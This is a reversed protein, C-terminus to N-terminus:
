KNLFIINEKQELQTSFCLIRNGNETRINVTSVRDGMMVPYDGDLPIIIESNKCVICNVNNTYDFDNSYLTYKNKLLNNAKNINGEQIYKRIMTSSIESNNYKVKEVISVKYDYKNAFHILTQTDGKAMYGFRFNYGVVVHKINYRKILIETIFKEPSYKSVEENLELVCVDTTNYSKLMNIKNEFSTIYKLNTSNKKMSMDSYKFTLIISNFNNKHSIDIMTNILIDHGKHIGDFNGIAICSYNKNTM